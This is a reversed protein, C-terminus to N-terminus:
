RREQHWCEWDMEKYHERRHFQASRNTAPTTVTKNGCSHQTPSSSSAHGHCLYFLGTGDGGKSYLGEKRLLGQCQACHTKEEGAGKLHVLPNKESRQQFSLFNRCTFHM